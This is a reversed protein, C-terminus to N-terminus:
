PGVIDTMVPAGKTGDPKPRGCGKDRIKGNPYPDVVYPPAVSRPCADDAPHVDARGDLVERHVTAVYRYDGAGRQPDNACDFMVDFHVDLKNGPRLTFPVVAPVARRVDWRSFTWGSM